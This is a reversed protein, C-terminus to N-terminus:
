RRALTWPQGAAAEEFRIARGVAQDAGAKGGLPKDAKDLAGRLRGRDPDSVLRKDLQEIVREVDTTPKEEASVGMKTYHDVVKDSDSPTQMLRTIVGLQHAIIRNADQLQAALIEVANELGGVRIKDATNM